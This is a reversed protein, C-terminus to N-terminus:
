PLYLRVADDMHRKYEKRANEMDANYMAAAQNIARMRPSVMPGLLAARASNAQEASLGARWGFYAPLGMLVGFFVFKGALTLRLYARKDREVGSERLLVVRYLYLALMGLSGLVLCKVFTFALQYGDTLRSAQNDQAFVVSVSFLTLLLAAERPRLNNKNDLLAARLM